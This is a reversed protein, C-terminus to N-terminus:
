EASKFKLLNKLGFYAKKLKSHEPDLRLGKQYHRCDLVGYLWMMIQWITYYARGRLLLADLNNEDEKLMYGTEAIADSYDKVALM